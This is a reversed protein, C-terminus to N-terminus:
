LLVIFANIFRYASRIGIDIVGVVCLIFDNGKAMYEQYVM